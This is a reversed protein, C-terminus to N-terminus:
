WSVKCTKLEGFRNYNPSLAGQNYGVYLWYRVGDLCVSKIQKKNKAKAERYYKGTEMKVDCGVMLLMATIILLKM